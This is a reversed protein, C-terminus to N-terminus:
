QGHRNQTTKKALALIILRDVLKQADVNDRKWIKPFLSLPTMGPITNLEFFWWNEQPDLLFDVRTFGSCHLALYVRKALEKGMELTKKSLTPEVTMEIAQKGYKKEFDVFEGEGIKEGPNPVSIEFGDSNGVLAFEFERCAVKGEEIMVRSDYRFAKEIASELDSAKKVQSIGISSGLRVPKVYLPYRLNHSLYRQKDQLWALYNFHRYAPTPVQAKIACQKAFVKDMALASALHDSGVYAKQLMEFFGQITGDEGNPGHLIPFFVECEEIEGMMEKWNWSQDIYFPIVDCTQRNISDIVLRSSRISIEHEPSHGGFVVGVKWKRPQYPRQVSTIDGAGLTVFVDYPRLREEMVKECEHRPVYSVPTISKKQIQEIVTHASLESIPDERSQFIDTVFLLDAWEFAKGFEELHDRTRTYRHPQFLVVLRREQVAEKIGRLVAHIESPHHAYDDIRLIGHEEGKKEARRKVGPFHKLAARITKEPINFTLAMAFAAAANLANHRGILAVEIKEYQNTPTSLDFFLHWGKQSFNSLRFHAKESFGYSMGKPNLKALREDDLCYICTNSIQSFFTRFSDELEKETKYHDMHELELNTVIACNPCYNLFSGDSEDAEFVFHTGKGVKGNCSQFVGGIAYTPDLQAELFVATLLSSTTTKGHTGTIAITNFGQMLQALLESRHLMKCQSVLAKQYEPNDASVASSFIIIDESSINQASHHHTICAGKGKLEELVSTPNEDSGSVHMKRDLLIRALASM